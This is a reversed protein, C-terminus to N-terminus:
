RTERGSRVVWERRKRSVELFIRAGANQSFRM